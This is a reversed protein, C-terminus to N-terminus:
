SLASKVAVRIKLYVNRGMVVSSSKGAEEAIWKVVSGQPGVVMSIHRREAVRVVVSACLAGDPLAKLEEMELTCLYPVEQHLRHLLKEWIHQELIEADEEDTVKGPESEFMGPTTRSLLSDRLNDVGHGNYASVLHIPESLPNSAMENAFYDEFYVTADLLRQRPRIRDCKNLALLLIHEMGTNERRATLFSGLQQLIVAVDKNHQPGRSADVVVVTVDADLAARWGTSAIDKRAAGLNGHQRRDVVGPTDWLYIQSNDRTHVGRVLRRTTNVKRSVAAVRAGVLRNLLTSKGANPAGVLAVSAVREDGVPPLRNLGDSSKLWKELADPSIRDALSVNSCKRVLSRANLARHRLSQLALMLLSDTRLNICIPTDDTSGDDSVCIPDENILDM